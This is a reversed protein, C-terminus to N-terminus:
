TMKSAYHPLAQTLLLWFETSMVAGTIARRFGEIANVPRPLDHPGVEAFACAVGILGALHYLHQRCRRNAVARLEAFCAWSAPKSRCPSISRTSAANPLAAPLSGYVRSRRERSCTACSKDTASGGFRGSATPSWM